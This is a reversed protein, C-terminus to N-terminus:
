KNTGMAQDYPPPCVDSNAYPMPQPYSATSSPAGTPYAAPGGTPALTGTPYQEPTMREYGTVTPSIVNVVTPPSRVDSAPVPRVRVWLPVMVGLRRWFLCYFGLMMLVSAVVFILIPLLFMIDNDMDDMASM